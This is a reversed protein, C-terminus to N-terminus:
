RAHPGMGRPSWAATVWSECRQLPVTLTACEEDGTDVVKERELEKDVGISTSFHAGYEEPANVYGIAPTLITLTESTIVLLQGEESWQLCWTPTIADGCPLVAKNIERLVGLEKSADNIEM